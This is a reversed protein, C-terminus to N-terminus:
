YLHYPGASRGRKRCSSFVRVDPVSYWHGAVAQLIYLTLTKAAQMANEKRQCPLLSLGAASSSEITPLPWTWANVQYTHTWRVVSRHPTLLGWMRVWEKLLAPYRCWWLPQPWHGHLSPCVCTGSVAWACRTMIMLAGATHLPNLPSPGAQPCAQTGLPWCHQLVSLSIAM